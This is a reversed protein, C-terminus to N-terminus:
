HANTSNSGDTHTDPNKYGNAIIEDIRKSESSILDRQQQTVPHDHIYQAYTLAVQDCIIDTWEESKLKELEEYNSMHGLELLMASTPSMSIVQLPYTDTTIIGSNVSWGAKQFNEDMLDAIERAATDDPKIYMQYGYFTPDEYANCHVSLFYDPQLATQAKTRMELDDLESIFDINDDERTYSVELNPNLRSLLDGIKKAYVLNLEKEVTGDDAQNGGDLGGHGPDILLTVKQDTVYTKDEIAKEVESQEEQEEQEEDPLSTQESSNPNDVPQDPPTVYVFHSILGWVLWLGLLVPLAALLIRSPKRLRAKKKKGSSGSTQNPSSKTPHQNPM